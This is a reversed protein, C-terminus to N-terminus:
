FRYSVGAGFRGMTGGPNEDRVYVHRLDVDVSLHDSVLFSAGGGLTLALGTSTVRGVDVIPGPRIIIGTGEFIRPDIDLPIPLWEIRYDTRSSAVGGGAVVFPLIRRSVTPIELRLNTTFILLDSEFDMGRYTIYRAGIPNRSDPEMSPAWVLEVGLGFSRNFRYGASASVSPSTGTEIVAASVSGSVIAGTSTQALVPAATLATGLAAVILACLARFGPAVSRSVDSPVHSRSVHSNPARDAGSLPAPMPTQPKTRM